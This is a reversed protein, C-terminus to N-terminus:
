CAQFNLPGILMDRIGILANLKDSTWLTLGCDNLSINLSSHLDDMIPKLMKVIEGIDCQDNAICNVIQPGSEIVSPKLNHSRENGLSYVPVGLKGYALGDFFKFRAKLRVGNISQMGAQELENNVIYFRVLSPIEKDEVKVLQVNGVFVLKENGMGIVPADLSQFQM